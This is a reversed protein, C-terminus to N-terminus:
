ACENWARVAGSLPIPVISNRFGTGRDGTANPMEKMNCDCDYDWDYDFVGDETM